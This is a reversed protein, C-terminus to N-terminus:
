PIGLEQRVQEVQLNHLAWGTQGAPHAQSQREFVLQNLQMIEVAFAPAAQLAGGLTLVEKGEAELLTSETEAPSKLVALEERSREAQM